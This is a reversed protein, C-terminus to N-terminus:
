PLGKPTGPIDSWLKQPDATLEDGTQKEYDPFDRVLRSAIDYNYKADWYDPRSKLALRYERKALNVLSSGGDVDSAEIKKYAANLMSNALAFHGIARISENEENTKRILVEMLQRAPEFQDRRCLYIIKQLIVASNASDVIDVDRGNEMKQILYNDNIDNKLKILSIGDLVVLAMLIIVLISSKVSRLTETIKMVYLNKM